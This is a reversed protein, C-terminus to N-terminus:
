GCCLWIFGCRLGFLHTRKTLVWFDRLRLGASEVRIVGVVWGDLEAMVAILQASNQVMTHELPVRVAQDRPMWSGRPLGGKKETIQIEM